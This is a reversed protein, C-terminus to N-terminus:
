ASDRRPAHDVPGPELVPRAHRYEGSRRVGALLSRRDRAAILLGSLSEQFLPWVVPVLNRFSGLALAAIVVLASKQFGDIFADVM